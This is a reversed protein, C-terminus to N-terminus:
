QGKVENNVLGEKQASMHLTNECGKHTQVLCPEQKTSRVHVSASNRYGPLGRRAVGLPGIQHTECKPSLIVLEPQALPGEGPDSLIHRKGWTVRCLSISVATHQRGVKGLWKHGNQNM